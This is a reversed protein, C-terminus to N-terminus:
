KWRKGVEQISGTTYQQEPVMYIYMYLKTSQDFQTSPANAMGQRELNWYGFLRQSPKSVFWNVIQQNIGNFVKTKENQESNVGIEKRKKTRRTSLRLKPTMKLGIENPWFAHHCHKYFGSLEDKTKSGMEGDTATCSTQGQIQHRNPM